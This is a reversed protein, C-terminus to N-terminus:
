AVYVPAKLIYRMLNWQTYYVMEAERNAFKESFSIEM